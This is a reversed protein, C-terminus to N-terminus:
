NREEPRGYAAASRCIQEIFGPGHEQCGIIIDIDPVYAFAPLVSLETSACRKEALRVVLKRCRTGCSTCPTYVIQFDGVACDFVDFDILAPCAPCPGNVTLLKPMDNM